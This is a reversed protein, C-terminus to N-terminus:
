TSVALLLLGIGLTFSYSLLQPCFSTISSVAPAQSTMMYWYLLLNNVLLSTEITDITGRIVMLGRAIFLFLPVRAIFVM